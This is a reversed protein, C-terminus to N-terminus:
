LEHLFMLKLDTDHPVYIMLVDCTSLQNWLLGDSYSFRSIKAKLHPPLIVERGSFQDLLLRCHDDQAYCEEIDYALSRTVYYVKTDAM